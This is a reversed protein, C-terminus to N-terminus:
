RFSEQMGESVSNNGSRMRRRAKSIAKQIGPEMFSGETQNIPNVQITQGVDNLIGKQAAWRKLDGSVPAEHGQNAFEHWAAYNIGKSNYANATVRYSVGGSGGAKRAKVNDYLDGDFREFKRRVTDKIGDEIDKAFREAMEEEMDPIGQMFRGNHNRLRNMNDDVNIQLAGELNVM